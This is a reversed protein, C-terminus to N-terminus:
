GSSTELEPPVIDAPTLQHRESDRAYSDAIEGARPHDMFVGIVAREERLDFAVSDEYFTERLFRLWEQPSELSDLVAIVVASGDEDALETFVGRIRAGEEASFTSVCTFGMATFQQLVTPVRPLVFDSHDLLDVFSVELCPDPWSPTSQGPESSGVRSESEDPFVLPASAWIGIGIVLLVIAGRFRANAVTTMTPVRTRRRSRDDASATSKWQQSAAEDEDDM